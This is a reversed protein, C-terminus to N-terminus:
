QKECSFSTYVGHPAFGDDQPLLILMDEFEASIKYGEHEFSVSVVNGTSADRAGACTLVIMGDQMVAGHPVRGTPVGWRALYYMLDLGEPRVDYHLDAAALEASYDCSNGVFDHSGTGIMIVKTQSAEVKGIFAKVMPKSYDPYCFIMCDYCQNGYLLRGNEDLKLSGDEIEYSPILDCSQGANWLDRAVQFSESFVASFKTWKKNWLVNDLHNAAAPLGMVVAVRCDLPSKQLDNLLQIKEEMRSVMELRGPHKLQAVGREMLVEYGLTIIRGGFRANQWVERPFTWSWGTGEGYWMNYWTNAKAKHALASRAPYPAIEDTFGFERPVAWWNLGNKYLEPHNALEDIAYWTPHVGVFADEGYQAKVRNYYWEEVAVTVKRIHEYYFNIYAIRTAENQPNAYVMGFYYDAAKVGFEAEFCSALSKSYWPSKWAQSFDFGPHALYGWEDLAVGDLPLDACSVFLDDFASICDKCASDPLEYWVNVLLVATKGSMGVGADVALKVNDGAFEISASNSIFDAEGQYTFDNLGSVSYAALLDADIPYYRGFQDGCDSIPLIDSGCGNEDLPIEVMRILATIGDPYKATYIGREARIDLEVVVKRGKEHIYDVADRVRERVLADSLGKSCWATGIYIHSYCSRECIDDIQARYTREDTLHSDDWKWFLIQPYNM